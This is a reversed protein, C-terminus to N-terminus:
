VSKKIAMNHTNTQKGHNRTHSAITQWSEKYSAITQWQKGRNRTQQTNIYQRKKNNFERKKYKEQYTLMNKINKEGPQKDASKNTNAGTNHTDVNGWSCRNLIREKGRKEGKIIDRTIKIQKTLRIARDRRQKSTRGHIRLQCQEDKLLYM